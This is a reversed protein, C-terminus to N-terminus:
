RTCRASSGRRAGSAILSRASRASQAFRADQVRQCGWLTSNKQLSLRFGGCGSICAPLAFGVFAGALLLRRLRCRLDCGMTGVNLEYVRDQMAVLGAKRLTSPHAEARRHRQNTPARASGDRHPPDACRRRAWGALGSTTATPPYHQATDDGSPSGASASASSRSCCRASTSMTATNPLAPPSTCGTSSM